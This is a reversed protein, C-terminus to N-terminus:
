SAQLFAGYLEMVKEKGGTLWTDFIAQVFSPKIKNQQMKCYHEYGAVIQIPINLERGIYIKDADPLSLLKNFAAHLAQEQDYWRRSRRSKLIARFTSWELNKSFERGHKKIMQECAKLLLRAFLKQSSPGLHEVTSVLQSLSDDVDYWRSVGPFSKNPTETSMTNCAEAGANPEPQQSTEAGIWQFDAMDPKMPAASNDIMNSPTKQQAQNVSAQGQVKV